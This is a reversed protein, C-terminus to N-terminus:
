SKSSERVRAQRRRAFSDDDDDDDGDGDMVSAWARSMRPKLRPVPHDAAWWDTSGQLVVYLEKAVHHHEKVTRLPGPVLAHRTHAQGVM